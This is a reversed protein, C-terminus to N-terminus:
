MLEWVSTMELAKLYLRVKTGGKSPDPLSDFDALLDLYRGAVFSAVCLLLVGHASYGRRAVARSAWLGKQSEYKLLTQATPLEPADPM